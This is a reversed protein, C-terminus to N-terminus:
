IRKNLFELTDNYVEDKNTELYIEHRDDQYIKLTVDTLNLKIYQKYLKELGKGNASVPDKSGGLILMPLNKNIKLLNEKKAIDVYVRLFNKYFSQSCVFGCYPDNVYKLVEVEDQNLWDFKTKANKFQKNFSGFSLNNMFNSPKSTDKSFACVIKSLGYGAKLIINSCSSGSLILGDINDYKTIYLQSMFSGMSHGLLYVKKNSENRVLEVLENINSVCMNFEGDAMHGLIKAHKGHGIHYIAHVSINNNNLYYALNEYRQPHEAMGHAIVVVAKEDVAPYSLFHVENGYSNIFQRELM